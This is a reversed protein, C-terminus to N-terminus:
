GSGVETVIKRLVEIVEEASQEFESKAADPNDDAFAIVEDLLARKAARKEDHSLRLVAEVRSQFQPPYYREFDTQSLAIFHESCDPFNQRLRTIIREGREDGDVLVWARDRYKPELHAFMFLRRYDDFMPEVRDLGGASVSRLRGALKPVFWSILYDRIIREASSEELILWADYLDFDSLEYGLHALLEGREVQTPPVDRIASTWLSGSREATVRFIRTEPEGGLYRLVVHSHTTVFVQNSQSCAVVQRLLRKLSEPHLDTEPEEILFVKETASALCSLLTVANAVGSGMQLLNIATTEDGYVGVLKGNVSSVTGVRFGLVYEIARLLPDAAPNEIGVLRDVRAPLTMWSREITKSLAENIQETYNPPRRNFLPYFVADPESAPLEGVDASSGDPGILRRSMARDRVITGEWRCSSWSPNPNFDPLRVLNELGIEITASSQGVRLDALSLGGGSQLGYLAHLITSKGANNRGVFLNM